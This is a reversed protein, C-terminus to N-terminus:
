VRELVRHYVPLDRAAYTVVRLEGSDVMSEIRRHLWADSIGLENRGLTRGIIEAELFRADAKAIEQRILYDYFSDPVTVLRGNVVARLTGRDEMLMHWVQATQAVMAEPLVEAQDIFRSWEHPHLGGWGPVTRYGESTPLFNPLRLVYIKRGSHGTRELEAMLWHFGCCEEPMDSYWIRLAEEGEIRKRISDLALKNRAISEEAMQEPDMDPFTKYLDVLLCQRNPWFGEEQISGMSLALDFHYIDALSGGLQKAAAWNAEQEVAYARRFEIEETSPAHGADSSVVSIVSSHTYDGSGYRQAIKFSGAASEGFLVDIM